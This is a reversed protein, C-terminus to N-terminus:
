HAMHGLEFTAAQYEMLFKVPTETAARLQALAQDRHGRLREYEALYFAKECHEDSSTGPEAVAVATFQEVTLDGLYLRIVANPWDPKPNGRLWKRLEPKGDHGAQSQALFLWIPAYAFDPLLESTKRFAVAAAEFDGKLYAVRGRGLPGRIEHEDLKIAQDFDALAKDLQATGILAEGRDAYLPAKATSPGALAIAQSFDAAAAAEDGAHDNAWARREYGSSLKPNHTIVVTWAAAEQRYQGLNDFQEGLVWYAPWLDLDLSTATSLETRAEGQRNLDILAMARFFHALAQDESGLLPNQAARACAAERQEPGAMVSCEALDAVRQADTAPSTGAGASAMGWVLVAIAGCLTSRM